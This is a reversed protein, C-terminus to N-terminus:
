VSIEYEITTLPMQYRLAFEVISIGECDYSHRICRKETFRNIDDACHSQEGAFYERDAPM